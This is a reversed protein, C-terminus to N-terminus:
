FCEFFVSLYFNLINVWLALLPLSPHLLDSLIRLLLRRQIGIWSWKVGWGEGEQEQEQEGQEEKRV